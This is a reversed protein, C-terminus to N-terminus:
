APPEIGRYNTSASKCIPCAGAPVTNVTSGCVQCVYYRGTKQDITRAVTEFFSPAWRLIQKIRDRHQQESGWAYGVAAIAEEVGEPKIQALLRPYFADISHMEGEAARLLNASRGSTSILVLADGRRGLARVQRAFVQDFGYDNGICTVLSGDASLAIAPLSSRNKQYRGVLETSFHGAEAASGGNGCILLKKDHRLTDVILRGAADIESRIASLAQLTRVSEALTSEFTM